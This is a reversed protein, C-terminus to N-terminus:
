GVILLNSFGTTREVAAVSDAASGAATGVYNAVVSALNFDSAIFGNLLLTAIITKTTANKV